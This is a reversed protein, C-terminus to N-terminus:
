LVNSHRNDLNQYQRRKTYHHDIYMYGGFLIIVGMIISFTIIVTSSDDEM